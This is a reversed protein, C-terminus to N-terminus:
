KGKLNAKLYIWNGRAIVESVIWVKGNDDISKGLLKLSFVVSPATNLIVQQKYKVLPFPFGQASITM